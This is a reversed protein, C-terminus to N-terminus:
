AAKNRRVLGPVANVLTYLATIALIVLLHQLIVPM